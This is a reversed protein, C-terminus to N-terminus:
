LPTKSESEEIPVKFPARCSEMEPLGELEMLGSCRERIPWSFRGRGGGGERGEATWFQAFPGFM